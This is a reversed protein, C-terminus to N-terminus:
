GILELISFSVLVSVTMLVSVTGHRLEICNYNHEATNVGYM